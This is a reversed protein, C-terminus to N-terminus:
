GPRPDQEPVLGGAVEVAGGGGPDHAQEVLKVALALGDDQDNVLLVDGVVAQAAHAQHVPADGLVPPLLAAHLCAMCSGANETPKACATISPLRAARAAIRALARRLASVASPMMMPTA